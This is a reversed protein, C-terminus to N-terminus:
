DPALPASLTHVPAFRLDLYTVLSDELGPSTAPDTSVNSHSASACCSM